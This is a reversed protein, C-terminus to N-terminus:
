KEEEGTVSLSNKLHANMNHRITSNNPRRRGETQSLHFKTASVCPRPAITSPMYCGRVSLDRVLEM